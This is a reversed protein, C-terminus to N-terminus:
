PGDTPFAVASNQLHANRHSYAHTHHLPLFPSNLPLYEARHYILPRRIIILLVVDLDKM